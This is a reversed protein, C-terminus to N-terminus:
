RATDPDLHPREGDDRPRAPSARTQLAPCATALAHATPPVPDGPKILPLATRVTSLTRLDSLTLRATDTLSPADLAPLMPLARLVVDHEPGTGALSALHLMALRPLGQLTLPGRVHELASTDIGALAPNEAIHVHGSLTTLRPLSLHVLATRQVDLGGAERLAPLALTRLGEDDRVRIQGGVHTLRPLVLALAGPPTRPGTGPVDPSHNLTIVLDGGIHSLHDLTFQDLVRNGRLLVTGSVRRLEGLRARVAPADTDLPVPAGRVSVQTPAASLGLTLDGDLTGIRATAFDSLAAVDLLAADRSVIREAFTRAPEHVLPGPAHAAMGHPGPADPAAPTARSLRELAAAADQAARRAAAVDPAGTM